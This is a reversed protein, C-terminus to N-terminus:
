PKAGSLLKRSISKSVEWLVGSDGPQVVIKHSLEKYPHIYNRYDRLVVGVQKVTQSIWKLEHAVDIFHRLTWAQLPLTKKTKTDKPAAVAKFVAAQDPERQIRALLLAELLGGMMVIAALDANAGICRTCEQWRNVLIRHM